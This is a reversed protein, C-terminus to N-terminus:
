VNNPYVFGLPHSPCPMNCTLTLFSVPNMQPFCSHLLCVALRLTRPVFDVLIKFSVPHPRPTHLSSLQSLVPAPPSVKQVKSNWLIRSFEQGLARVLWITQLTRYSGVGVSRSVGVNFVVRGVGFLHCSVEWCRVHLGCIAGFGGLEM